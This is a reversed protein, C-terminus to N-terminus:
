NKGKKLIRVCDNTHIVVGNILTIEADLSLEDGDDVYGFANVIEQTDFKLTLDFFGDPGLEHCGCMDGEYPTAVDEYDGRLPDVGVLKVWYIDLINLNQMGLVAVPLVGNSKVNLPNPCSGPKIDLPVQIYQAGTLVITYSGPSDLNGIWETIPDGGGAETPGHTDSFPSSPFILGSISYPDRNYETIALYYLGPTSPSYAHGSPLLSELGPGGDDNAYVGMGTQDFLFLQPDFGTLNTAASFAAPDSIYILYMDGLDPGGTLAGSISDLPGNGLAAQATDPLDGADGIEAWGGLANSGAMTVIILGCVVTLKNMTKRRKKIKNSKLLHM